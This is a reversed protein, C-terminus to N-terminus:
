RSVSGRPSTVWAAGFALRADQSINIVRAGHDVAFRIGVSITSSSSGTHNVVVPLVRADPAVGVMGTGGGQGAILVAM